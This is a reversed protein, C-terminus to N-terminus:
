KFGFFNIFDLILHCLIGFGLGFSFLMISTIVIKHHLIGRYISYACGPDTKAVEGQGKFIFKLKCTLKGTHDVDIM